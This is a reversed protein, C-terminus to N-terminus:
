KDFLADFANKGNGWCWGNYAIGAMMLLVSVIMVPYAVADPVKVIFRNVITYIVWIMIGIPACVALFKEM